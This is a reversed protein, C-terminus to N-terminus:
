YAFSTEESSLLSLEESSSFGLDAWNFAVAGEGALFIGALFADEEEESSDSSDESSSCTALGTFGVGVFAAAGLGADDSEDDSESSSSVGGALTDFVVETFSAGM